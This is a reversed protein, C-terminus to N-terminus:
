RGLRWALLGVLIPPVFLGVFTLIIWLVDDSASDLPPQGGGLSIEWRDSSPQGPFTFFIPAEEMNEGLVGVYHSRLSSPFIYAGSAVGPILLSEFSSINFSSSFTGPWRAYGIEGGLETSFRLVNPADMSVQMGAHVINAALALQTETSTYEMHDFYIDFLTSNPTMLSGDWQRSSTPACLWQSFYLLYGSIRTMTRVTLTMQEDPSVTSLMNARANVGSEAKRWDRSHLAINQVIEDVAPNYAGDSPDVDVYEILAQAVLGFCSANLGLSISGADGGFFAQWDVTLQYGTDSTAYCFIAGPVGNTGMISLMLDRAYAAHDGTHVM